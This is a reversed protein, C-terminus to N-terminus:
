IAIANFSPRHVKSHIAPTPPTTTTYRDDLPGFISRRKVGTARFMPIRLSPSRQQLVVVVTGLLSCENMAQDSTVEVAMTPGDEGGSGESGTGSSFM